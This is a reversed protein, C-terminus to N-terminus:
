NWQCGLSCSKLSRATKYYWFFAIHVRGQINVIGTCLFPQLITALYHSKIGVRGIFRLKSLLSSMDVSAVQFFFNTNTFAPEYHQSIKTSRVEPPNITCPYRNRWSFDSFNTTVLHLNNFFFILYRAVWRQIYLSLNTFLTVNNLGINQSVAWNTVLRNWFWM